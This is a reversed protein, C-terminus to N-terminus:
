VDLLPYLESAALHLLASATPIRVGYLATLSKIRTEEDSTALAIATFKRVEEESNREYHRRARGRTKWDCVYIFDKRTYYGANRSRAGIQLVETDGYVYSYRSAWYSISKPPFRM